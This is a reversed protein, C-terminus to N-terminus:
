RDDGAPDWGFLGVAFDFIEGLRVEADAGIIVAASARLTWLETAGDRHYFKMSKQNERQWYGYSGSYYPIGKVKENWNHLILGWARITEDWSALKRNALGGAWAKDEYMFGVGVWQTVQVEAGLADGVIIHVRLMDVADMTRDHLYDKTGACGPAVALALLLAAARLRM